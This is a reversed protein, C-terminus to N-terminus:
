TVRVAKFSFPSGLEELFHHDRDFVKINCDERGDATGGKSPGSPTQATEGASLAFKSDRVKEFFDQKGSKAVSNVNSTKKNNSFM